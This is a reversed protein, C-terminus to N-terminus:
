APRLAAPKAATPLNLGILRRQLSRTMGTLAADEGEVRLSHAVPAAPLVARRVVRKMGALHALRRAADLKMDQPIIM